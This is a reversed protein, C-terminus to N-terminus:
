ILASHSLWPREFPPASIHWRTPRVLLSGLHRFWSPVPARAATVLEFPRRRLRSAPFLWHIAFFSPSPKLTSPARSPTNLLNRLSIFPPKGEGAPAAYLSSMSSGCQSHKSIPRPKEKLGEALRRTEGDFGLGAVVHRQGHRGPAEQLDSLRMRDLGVCWEARVLRRHKPAIYAACSGIM